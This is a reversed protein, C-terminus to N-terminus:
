SSVNFISTCLQRERDDNTALIVIVGEARARLIEAELVDRGRRDLTVSPEDLILVDPSLHVALAISMRQQLGSSFTRIIDNARDALGVRDLIRAVHTADVHRGHWRAHLHLLETSTFEDYLRLYPAVFGVHQPITEPAVDHEDITLAVSGSDATLVGALVRLLTSKGSGNDGVIGLCEGGSAALDVDRLIAKPGYRKSIGTATLRRRM